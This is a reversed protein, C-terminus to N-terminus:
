KDQSVSRIYLRHYGEAMKEASFALEARKRAAMSMTERLRYNDHFLLCKNAFEGPNRGTILFGEAGDKFIEGIGGVDPAIVPLGHAMAELITMPIGEHVSTNLYIDLGRYFAGMDDLHGRLLFRDHLGYRKILEEIANREPGDGSLEFLIDKAGSLDVARAIEVMLRYDKIPFLRGSSGIVFPKPAEDLVSVTAPPLPIGNHIVEVTEKRFGFRNTLANRIDESVAVTIFRRSLVFFNVQAKFRQIFSPKKVIIEPLGHQTSVLKTGGCSLSIMAAILNEKYRHSHIIDPPADGISAQTQRLLEWFSYRSEDIVRVNLGSARLESALRGENFLIVSLDLDSYNKLHRLLNCAMTEAGAWLDGSVLHLVKYRPGPSSAM